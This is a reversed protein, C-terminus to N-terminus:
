AGAPHTPRSRSRAANLPGLQARDARGDLYGRSLAWTIRASLVGPRLVMAGLSRVWKYRFHRAAFPYPGRACWGLFYALAYHHRSDTARKRPHFVPRTNMSLMRTQPAVDLARFVFLSEEGQSIACGLGIREDFRLSLGLRAPMDIGISTAFYLLDQPSIPSLHPLDREDWSAFARSTVPDFAPHVLIADAPAIHENVAFFGDGYWCDDDPFLLRTAPGVESKDLAQDLHDLVRNRAVSL